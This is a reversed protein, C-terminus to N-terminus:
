KIPGDSSEAIYKQLLDFAQHEREDGTKQVLVKLRQMDAAIEDAPLLHVRSALIAAEIVAHRARNFGVFERLVGREVVRAEIHTREASDDLTEVKFAYWRCADAIIFRSPDGTPLMAPVPEIGGVIAQAFLLVDDTVHFVGVGTRKLNRYTTSTQYPRLTLRSMPEDVVPGMPSINATGDENCTTVIGELIM